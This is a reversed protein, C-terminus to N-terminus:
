RSPSCNSGDAAKQRGTNIGGDGNPTCLELLRATDRGDSGRFSREPHEELWAQVAGRLRAARLADRDWHFDFPEHMEYGVVVHDGVADGIEAGLRAVEGQVAVGVTWGEALLVPGIDAIRSRWRHNELSDIVFLRAAFDPVDFRAVSHIFTADERRYRLYLSDYSWAGEHYSMLTWDLHLVTLAGAVTIMRRANRYSQVTLALRVETGLRAALDPDRDALSALRELDAPTAQLALCRGRIGQVPDNRVSVSLGTADGWLRAVNLHRYFAEASALFGHASAAAAVARGAVVLHWVHGNTILTRGAALEAAYREAQELAARQHRIEALRISPRKCEIVLAARGGLNVVVDPRTRSQSLYGETRIDSALVGLGDRVLPVVVHARVDEETRHPELQALLRRATDRFRAYGPDVRRLAM